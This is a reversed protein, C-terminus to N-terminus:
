RPDGGPEAGAETGPGRSSAGATTLPDLLALEERTLRRNRGAVDSLACLATGDRRIGVLHGGDGQALVQVSRAGLRSAVLRDTATPSGGRQIHGLVTTRTEFGTRQSLVKAVRHGMGGILRQGWQDLDPEPETMSGAVPTAGEAVVVISADRGHGHRDVLDLAIREVDFAREPVLIAAAGGAIGAGAALHGAHRGMVELVMLRDHSAATTHLRDVADTAVYLATDFGICVDTGWVDNDITKPVAVVPFGADHVMKSTMVTGDGGIAVLAEVGDRDLREILPEPGNETLGPHSRSTGLMTGGRPVVGRVRGVDLTEHEGELVGAWGRNYGVVPTGFMHDAMRVVARIAANLGACDGGGTLVGIQM